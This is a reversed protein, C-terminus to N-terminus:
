DAEAYIEVIRENDYSALGDKFRWDATDVMLTGVDTAIEDVLHDADWQSEARVKFTIIGDRRIEYVQEEDHPM